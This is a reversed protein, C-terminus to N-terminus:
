RNSETRTCGGALALAVNDSWIELNRICWPKLSIGLSIVKKQFGTIQDLVIRTPNEGTWDRVDLTPNDDVVTQTGVLIAQERRAMQTGIAKFIRQHDL